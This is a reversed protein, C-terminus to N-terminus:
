FKGTGYDTIDWGLRKDVIERADSKLNKWKDPSWSAFEPLYFHCQRLLNEMDKIVKNIESRKM